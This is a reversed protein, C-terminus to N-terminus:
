NSKMWSRMVKVPSPARTKFRLDTIKGDRVKAVVRGKLQNLHWIKLRNSTITGEVTVNEGDVTVNDVSQVKLDAAFRTKHWQELAEHGQYTTPGFELVAQDGFFAICRELDRAGFADLYETVVDAANMTQM